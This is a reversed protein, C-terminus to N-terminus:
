EDKKRRLFGDGQGDRRPDAKSEVKGAIEAFGSNRKKRSLPMM